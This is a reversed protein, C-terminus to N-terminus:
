REGSIEATSEAFLQPVPSLQGGNLSAAGRSWRRRRKQLDGRPPDPARSFGGSKGPHFESPVEGCGDPVVM